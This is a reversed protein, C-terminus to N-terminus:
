STIIFLDVDTYTGNVRMRVETGAPVNGTLNDSFSVFGAGHLDISLDRWGGLAFFQLAASFDDGVTAVSSVGALLKSNPGVYISRTTANGSGFREHITGTTM